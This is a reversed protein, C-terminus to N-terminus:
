LLEDCGAPAKAAKGQLDELHLLAAKLVELRHLLLRRLDSTDLCIASMAESPDGLFVVRATLVVKNSYHARM